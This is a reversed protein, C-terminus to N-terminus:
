QGNRRHQQAALRRFVGFQEHQPVLVRDKPPLECALDTVLGRVPEPERDQGPQQVTPSPLPDERDRGAGQEVPVAPEDGSPPVVGRTSAGSAWWGRRRDSCDHQPKGLLVRTPTVSSDLAFWGPEAVADSGRRDPLNQASRADVRCWAAGTRRPPLEEGDLGLADDRRVEEVEVGHEALPEVRQREEFVVGPARVDGADGGVRGPLPRRLLGPVEGGVESLPHLRRAEQEAVAVALVALREVGDELGVVQEQDQAFGM